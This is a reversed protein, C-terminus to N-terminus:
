LWSWYDERLDTSFISSDFSSFCMLLDAVGSLALLWIVKEYSLGLLMGAVSNKAAFVFVVPLQSMAIYGSRSPDTFPNSGEFTAYLLVLLYGGLVLLQGLSFGPTIRYRLTPVFPRAFTPCSAVHPPYSSRARKRRQRQAVYERTYLSHSDDSAFDMGGESPIVGISHGAVGLRGRKLRRRRVSRLIHGHSWAMARSLRALVRPLRFLVFCGFIAVLLLDVHFVLAAPDVLSKSPPTAFRNSTNAFSM